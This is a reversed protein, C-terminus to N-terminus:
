LFHKGNRCFRGLLNKYSFIILNKHGVEAHQRKIGFHVEPSNIVITYNVFINIRSIHKNKKTITYTLNWLLELHIHQMGLKPKSWIDNTLFNSDNQHTNIKTHMEWILDQMQMRTYIKGVTITHTHWFSSVSSSVSVHVVDSYLLVQVL